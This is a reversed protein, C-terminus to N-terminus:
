KTKALDLLLKDLEKIKEDWTWHKEVHKRGEKGLDRALKPNKLLGLIRDSIEQADFDTLFGTKGNIVTERHGSVNTAIVGVGCAMAELPVLGFTELRNPCIVALSRSYEKVLDIDASRQNNEKVWSVMKISPRIKKPILDVATKLLDFGDNIVERNGVFFVQNKKKVDIPNFVNQDIGLYSVRPYVGYAEIMRERVHYCSAITFTANRVNVIDIKKRISRTIQEYLYKLTTDKKARFNYEYVIRLPEQCYYVNKTRLHMLVFPAQSIKDPHVLCIDYKKNDIELAIKKHLKNLSYLTKFDNIFRGLFPIKRELLNFKFYYFNNSVSKLDFYDLNKDTTYVDVTHGREKLRKTQEFVARKAGGFDLNYFVAIKM